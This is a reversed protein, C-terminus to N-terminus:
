KKVEGLDLNDILLTMLSIIVNLRHCILRDGPTSVFTEQASLKLSNELAEIRKMMKPDFSM